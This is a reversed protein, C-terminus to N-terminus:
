TSVQNRGGNKARYLASDAASVLGQADIAHLPVVALGASVTTYPNEKEQTGRIREAIELAEEINTEPLLLSFEEGGIRATVDMSRTAEKLIEGFEQLVRDGVQHGYHDNVWKFHDLDFTLLALPRNYRAARVIERELHEDFYRRNYLGTLPDTAALVEVQNLAEILDANINALRDKALRLEKTREEVLHELAINLEALDAQAQEAAEAHKWLCSLMRVKQRVEAESFPKAIFDWCNRLHPEFLANIEDVSRDNYATVVACRMRPFKKLIQLMTEIGDIEGPMKVDFFGVCIQGNATDIKRATELAAEGSDLVIIEWGCPIISHSDAPQTNGQIDVMLHRLQDLADCGTKGEIYQRYADLVGADDDVFFIYKGSFSHM